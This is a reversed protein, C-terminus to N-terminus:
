APAGVTPTAAPRSASSTPATVRRPLPRRVSRGVGVHARHGQPPPDAAPRPRSRRAARAAAARGAVSTVAHLRGRRRGRREGLFGPRRPPPRRPRRRRDDGDRVGLRRRPRRRLDRGQHPADYWPQLEARLEDRNAFRHRAGFREDALLDPRGYVGCQLDWDIPRVTGPIVHGDKCRFVGAPFAGVQFGAQRDDARPAQAARRRAPLGRHRGRCRHPDLRGVVRRRSPRARARALATLAGAVGFGGALYQSQWGPFRHPRGDEVTAPLMGSAAQVLLEDTPDGPDDADYGWATMSVVTKGAAVLADPDLATGARQSRVRDDLVVHARGAPGRCGRRLLVDERTSTSSCRDPNSPSRVTTSPSVAPRTAARRSSRSSEAGLMALLRGAYPGAIGTAVELVRLGTLPGTVGGGTPLTGHRARAELLDLVPDLPPQARTTSSRGWYRLACDRTRRLSSSAAKAAAAASGLTRTIM